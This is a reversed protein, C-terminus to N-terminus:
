SGRVMPLKNRIYAVRETTIDTLFAAPENHGASAAQVGWPDYVGSHGYLEIGTEQNAGCMDVGIFWLQNEIARAQLLTDWHPDGTSATFAATCIVADCETFHTFMEGFRLDFCTCLGITMEKFRFSKVAHGPVFADAESIFGKRNLKLEFLHRKDYYALLEGSADLVVTRNYVNGDAELVSLGGLVLAAQCSRAMPSLVALWEEQRRAVKKTTDMNALCTCYEPFVVMEAGQSQLARAQAGIAALNAEVDPTANMQVIGLTLKM